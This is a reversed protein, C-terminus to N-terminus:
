ALPLLIDFVPAQLHLLFTIYIIQNFYIFVTCELCFRRYKYLIVNVFRFVFLGTVKDIKGWPTCFIHGIELVVVEESLLYNVM